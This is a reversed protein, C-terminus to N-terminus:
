IAKSSCNGDYQLTLSDFHLKESGPSAGRIVAPGPVIVVALCHGWGTVAPKAWVGDPLAWIASRCPGGPVSSGAGMGAGSPGTAGATMAVAAEKERHASLSLASSELIQKEEQLYCYCQFIITLHLHLQTSFTGLVTQSRNWSRISCRAPKGPPVIIFFGGALAPSM